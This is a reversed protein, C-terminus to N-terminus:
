GLYLPLPPQNHYDAWLDEVVPASDVRELTKEVTPLSGELPDDAAQAEYYRDRVDARSM